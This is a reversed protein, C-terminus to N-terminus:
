NKFTDLHEGYVQLAKDQDSDAFGAWENKPYKARKVLFALVRLAGGGTKQVVMKLRGNQRTLVFTSKSSYHAARDGRRNPLVDVKRGAGASEGGRARAAIWLYKKHRPKITDGRYAVGAGVFTSFLEPGESDAAARLSRGFLGSGGGLPTLGLRKARQSRLAAGHVDVGRDLRQLNALRASQAVNMSPRRLDKMQLGLRSVRRQIDELGVVKVEANASITM